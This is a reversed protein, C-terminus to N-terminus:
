KWENWGANGWRTRYKLARNGDSRLQFRFWPNARSSVFNVVIISQDVNDIYAICNETLNDFEGESTIEIGKFNQM